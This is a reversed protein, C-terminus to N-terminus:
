AVATITILGGSGAQLVSITGTNIVTTPLYFTSTTGITTVATNDLKFHEVYNSPILIGNAATATQNFTIFAPQSNTAIRVVKPVTGAFTTATVIQATSSMTLVTSTGIVKSLM